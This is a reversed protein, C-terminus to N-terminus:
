SLEEEYLRAIQQTVEDWDWLKVDGRKILLWM